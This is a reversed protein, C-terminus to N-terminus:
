EETADKLKEASETAPCLPEETVNRDKPEQHLKQKRARIRRVAKVIHYKSVEVQRSNENSIPQQAIEM